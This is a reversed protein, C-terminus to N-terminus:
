VMWTDSWGTSGEKPLVAKIAVPPAAAQLTNVQYQWTTGATVQGATYSQIQAAADTWYEGINSRQGQLLAVAADLQKQDLEYPNKIGLDPKTSMLYVAADAIYIPDDYVSLKSKAPTAPDFLASWSDLDGSILDSRWALLNAGRGHPIGYHVGGFTNYPQDKLAPIVDAYNPVLAVNVPKVDDGAVLRLSADGSASVGDFNGTKMLTVMQSSDQGITVNVKCGTKQTFPTVWDVKPDTSGNEVYGAWAVLDLQGEGAGVKAQAGAAVDKNAPEGGGTGSSGSGEDGGGCGAALLALGAVVLILTAWGAHRKWHRSM